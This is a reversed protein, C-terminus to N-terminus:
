KKHDYYGNYYGLAAVGVTAAAALAVTALPMLFILFGGETEKLEQSNLEVLNLSETKM